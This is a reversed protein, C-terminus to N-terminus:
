CYNYQLKYIQIKKFQIGKINKELDFSV